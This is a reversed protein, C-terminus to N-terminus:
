ARSPASEIVETGAREDHLARRAWVALPLATLRLVAQLLSPRRGDLGVVRQGLARGGPTSAALCWFGIHYVSTVCALLPMFRRTPPAALATIAGCLALDLSAAALRQAPGAPLGPPPVRGRLGLLYLRMLAHHLPLQTLEYLRRPLWPSYGAVEGVLRGDQWGVSLTGGPQRALLGGRIVRQWGSALRSASDFSLLALPGLRLCDGRARVLGCTLRQMAPLYDNPIAGPQRSAVADLVTVTESATM